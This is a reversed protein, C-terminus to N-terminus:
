ISAYVHWIELRDTILLLAITLASLGSLTDTLVLVRRRDWRDALMGALPSVVIQPVAFCLYILAFQAVSGTRQYVHVGLAFETLGSGVLSGLQCAWITSFLRMGRANPQRAM